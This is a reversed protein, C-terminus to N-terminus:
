VGTMCPYVRKKVDPGPCPARRREDSPKCVDRDNTPAVHRQDNRRNYGRNPALIRGRSMDVREM